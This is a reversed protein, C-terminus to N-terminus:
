LCSRLDGTTTSVLLLGRYANAFIDFTNMADVLDQLKLWLPPYKYKAVDLMLVLDQKADYAVIPSFHGYGSENLGNRDFNSIVHSNDRGLANRILCRAEDLSPASVNLVSVKPFCEAISALQSRTVGYGPTVVRSVCADNSISGQTWYPYPAYIPDIPADVGELSNLVASLSAIGCMSENVQTEYHISVQWYSRAMSRSLMEMGISSNLEISAPPPPLAHASGIVVFFLLLM